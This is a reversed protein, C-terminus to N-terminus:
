LKEIFKDNDLEIGTRGDLAPEDFKVSVVTAGMFELVDAVTGYVDSGYGTAGALVRVRDNVNVTKAAM